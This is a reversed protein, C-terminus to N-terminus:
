HCDKAKDLENYEPKMLNFATVVKNSQGFAASLGVMCALLFIIKKM